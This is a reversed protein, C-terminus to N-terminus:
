PLLRFVAGGLHFAALVIAPTAPMLLIALTLRQRRRRAASATEYLRAIARTTSM